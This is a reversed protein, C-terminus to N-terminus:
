VNILNFKKKYKLSIVRDIQHLAHLQDENLDEIQQNYTVSISSKNNAAKTHKVKGWGLNQLHTIYIYIQKYETISSYRVGAGSPQVM